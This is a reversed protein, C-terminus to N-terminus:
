EDYDGAAARLVPASLNNQCMAVDVVRTSMCLAKTYMKSRAKNNGQVTNLHTTLYKM